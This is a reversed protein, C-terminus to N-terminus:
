KLGYINKINNVLMNEIHKNSIGKESTKLKEFVNKIDLNYFNM